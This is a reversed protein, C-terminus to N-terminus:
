QLLHSLEPKSKIFIEFGEPKVISRGEDELIKAVKRWTNNVRKFCPKISHLNGDISESLNKFCEQIMSNICAFLEKDTTLDSERAIKLLKDELFM